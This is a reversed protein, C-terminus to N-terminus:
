KPFGLLSPLARVAVRAELEAIQERLYRNEGELGSCRPQRKLSQTGLGAVRFM